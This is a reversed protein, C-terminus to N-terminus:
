LCSNEMIAKLKLGHVQRLDDTKLPASKTGYRMPASCDATMPIHLSAAM